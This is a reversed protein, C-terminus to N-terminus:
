SLQYRLNAVTFFKLANRANAREDNARIFSLCEFRRSQFEKRHGIKTILETSLVLSDLMCCVHIVAKTIM